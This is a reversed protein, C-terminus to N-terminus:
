QVAQSQDVLGIWLHERYVREDAMIVLGPITPPDDGLTEPHLYVLDPYQGRKAHYYDVARQINTTLNNRRTADFWTMIDRM